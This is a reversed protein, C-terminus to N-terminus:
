IRDEPEEGAEGEREEHWGADERCRGGFVQDSGSNAHEKATNTHRPERAARFFQQRTFFPSTSAAVCNRPHEFESKQDRIECLRRPLPLRTALPHPLRSTRGSSRCQLIAVDALLQVIGPQTRTTSSPGINWSFIIDTTSENQRSRMKDLALSFSVAGGHGAEANPGNNYPNGGYQQYQTYSM